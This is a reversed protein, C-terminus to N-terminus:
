NFRSSPVPGMARVRDRPGQLWAHAVAAAFSTFAADPDPPTAGDGSATEPSAAVIEAAL